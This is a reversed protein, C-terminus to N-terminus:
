LGVVFAAVAQQSMICGRRTHRTALHWGLLMVVAGQTGTSTRRSLRRSQVATGQNQKFIMKTKLGASSLGKLLRMSFGSINSTRQNRPLCPRCPSERLSVEAILLTHAKSSIFSRSQCSRTRLKKTFGAVWCQVCKSWLMPCAFGAAQCAVVIVRTVLILVIVIVIVIVIAIVIAVVTIITVIVIVLTM